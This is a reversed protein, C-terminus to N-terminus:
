GLLGRMVRGGRGLVSGLRRTLLRWWTEEVGRRWRRDMRASLYLRSMFLETLLPLQSIWKRNMEEDMVDWKSCLNGVLSFSMSFSSPLPSPHRFFLLVVLRGRMLLM